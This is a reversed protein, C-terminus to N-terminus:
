RMSTWLSQLNQPAIRIIGGRPSDLDALLMFAVAIMVPM